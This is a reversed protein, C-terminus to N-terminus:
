DDLALQTVASKVVRTDPPAEDRYDTKIATEVRPMGAVDSSMGKAQMLVQSRAIQYDEQKAEITLESPRKMLILGNQRIVGAEGVRGFCPMEDIGVPEWGNAKIESQYFPDEEGLCSERKWEYSTGPQKLDKPIANRDTGASRRRRVEPDRTDRLSEPRLSPRAM